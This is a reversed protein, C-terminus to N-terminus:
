AYTSEDSVLAVVWLILEGENEGCYGTCFGESNLARRCNTCLIKGYFAECRVLDVRIKVINRNVNALKMWSMEVFPLEEKVMKASIDPSKQINIEFIHDQWKQKPKYLISINDSIALSANTILYVFGIKFFNM